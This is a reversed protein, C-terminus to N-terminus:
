YIEELIKIFNPAIINAIEMSGKPTTHVGDWWFDLKGKLNSAVDICRYKKIKCHNILSLNLAALVKNNYGEATLQNIFIPVANIKKTEFYLKDVRSLYVKILNKNKELIGKVDNNNKFEKYDLFKTNSSKYKKIGEDFDYLLKKESKHYKHKLKRALDYFFSRSKINDFMREYKSDSLIKGDQFENRLEQDAYQDNIGIYYIIFKPRFDKLRPFWYKLNSLHGRTSQGEIGANFIKIKKNKEFLKKNLIGTITYKEPKYREDTTSGGMIVAKINKLPVDEGRFAHYNRKYIFEISQGEYNVVYTAKRLRHERVYPGLNNKDFWYGFFIEILSLISLTVILNISLIKLFNKM